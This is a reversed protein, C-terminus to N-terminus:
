DHRFDTTQMPSVVSDGTTAYSDAPSVDLDARSVEMDSKNGTSEPFIELDLPADQDTQVVPKEAPVDFKAASGEMEFIEHAAGPMEDVFDNPAVALERAAHRGELEVAQISVKPLSSPAIPLEAKEFDMESTRIRSKRLLRFYLLLIACIFALALITAALGIGAKAVPSMGAGLPNAKSTPQPTISIFGMGSSGAQRLLVKCDSALTSSAVPRQPVGGVSRCAPEAKQNAALYAANAIWSSKERMECGLYTGFVGTTENGTTAECGPEPGGPKKSCHGAIYKSQQSPSWAPDTVCELTDMMCFCTRNYPLAPLNEALTIDPVPAQSDWEPSRVNPITLAHCAPATNTPTYQALQVTSPHAKKLQSALVYFDPARSSDNSTIADILGARILTPRWGRVFKGLNAGNSPNDMWERIFIGSLIDAGPDGFIQQIESFSHSNNRQCGGLTFTPISYGAYQAVLDDGFISASDACYNLKRIPKGFGYFDVSDERDGCNLFEAVTGVSPDHISNIYGFPINRYRKRAAYKKFEIVARKARQPLFNSRKSAGFYFGLTNPYKSFGDIIGHFDNIINYDWPSYSQNDQTYYRPTRGNLMLMVAINASELLRMCDTHDKTMDVDEVLLTNIGLATLDPIDRACLSDDGLLDIFATSLGATRGSDGYYVGRIFYRDGGHQRFFYSGKITLL